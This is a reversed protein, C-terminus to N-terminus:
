QEVRERQRSTRRSVSGAELRPAAIPVDDAVGSLVESKDAPPADSLLQSRRVSWVLVARIPVEQLTVALAARSAGLVPVFALIRVLSSAFGSALARPVLDARGGTNLAAVVSSINGALRLSSVIIRIYTSADANALPTLAITM